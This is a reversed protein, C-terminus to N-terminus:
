GYDLCSGSHAPHVKQRLDPLSKLRCKICNGSVTSLLAVWRVTTCPRNCHCAFVNFFFIGIFFVVEFNAKQVVTCSHLMAQSHISQCVPLQWKATISKHHHGSGPSFAVAGIPPDWFPWGPQPFPPFCSPCIIIGNTSSPTDTNKYENSTTRQEM